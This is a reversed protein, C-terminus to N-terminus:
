NLKLRYFIIANTNGVKLSATTNTLTLNALPRWTVINSLSTTYEVTYQKSPQGHIILNRTQDPSLRAELSLPPQDIARYFGPTANTLRLFAFSGSLTATM